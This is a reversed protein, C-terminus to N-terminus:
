TRSVPNRNQDDDPDDEPSIESFARDLLTAALQQADVSYTGNRVQEALSELWAEREPTGDTHERLRRALEHLDDGGAM